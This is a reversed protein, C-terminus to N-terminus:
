KMYFAMRFFTLLGLKSVMCYWRYSAKHELAEKHWNNVKGDLVTKHSKLNHCNSQDKRKVSRRCCSHSFVTTLAGSGYNTNESTKFLFIWTLSNDTSLEPPWYIKVDIFKFLSRLSSFFLYPSYIDKLGSSSLESFSFM